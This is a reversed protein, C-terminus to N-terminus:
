LRCVARQEGAGPQWGKFDVGPVINCARTATVLFTLLDCVLLLAQLPTTAMQIIFSMHCSSVSQFTLSPQVLASLGGVQIGGWPHENVTFAPRLFCPSLSVCTLLGLWPLQVAGNLYSATEDRLKDNLPPAPCTWLYGCHPGANYPPSLCLPACFSFGTLSGPPLLTQVPTSDVRFLLCVPLIFLMSRQVCLAPCHSSPM